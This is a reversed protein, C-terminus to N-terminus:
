VQTFWFQWSYAVVAGPRINVVLIELAFTDLCPRIVCLSM